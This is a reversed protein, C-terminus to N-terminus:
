PILAWRPDQHGYDIVPYQYRHFLEHCLATDQILDATKVIAMNSDPWWCGVEEGDYNDLCQGEGVPDPSFTVRTKLYTAGLAEECAKVVPCFSKRDQQENWQVQFRGDCLIADPEWFTSCATLCLLAAALIKTKM